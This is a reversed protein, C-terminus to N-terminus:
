EIPKFPDPKKDDIKEGLYLTKKADSIISTYYNGVPFAHKRHESIKISQLIIRLAISYKDPDINNLLDEITVERKEQM